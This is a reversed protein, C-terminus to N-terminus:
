LAENQNEPRSSYFYLIGVDVVLEYATTKCM